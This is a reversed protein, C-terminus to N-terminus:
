RQGPMGDSFRHFMPIGREEGDIRSRSKPPSDSTYYSLSSEESLAPDNIKGQEFASM